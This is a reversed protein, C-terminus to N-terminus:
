KGGGIRQTASKTAINLLSMYIVITFLAIAVGPRVLLRNAKQMKGPNRDLWSNLKSRMKSEVQKATAVQEHSTASNALSTAGKLDSLAEQAEADRARKEAEEQEDLEPEDTSVTWEGKRAKVEDIKTQSHGGDTLLGEIFEDPINHPFIETNYLADVVQNPDSDKNLVVKISNEFNTRKDESLEQM